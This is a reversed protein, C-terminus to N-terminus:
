IVKKVAILILILSPHLVMQMPTFPRILMGIDIGSPELDLRVLSGQMLDM